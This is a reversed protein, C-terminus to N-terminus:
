QQRFPPVIKLPLMINQVITLWPLLTANQFAMGIRVDEGAQGVTVTGETPQLLGGVLKLITSKGCGSPGVLAVLEGRGIALNASQLAVVEQEAAGFRVTVNKLELHREVSASAAAAVDAPAAAARTASAM